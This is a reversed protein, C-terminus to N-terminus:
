FKEKRKSCKDPGYKVTTNQDTDWSDFFQVIVYGLFMIFLSLGITILFITM